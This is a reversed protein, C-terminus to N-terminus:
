ITGTVLLTVTPYNIQCGTFILLFFVTVYYQIQNVVPNLFYDETVQKGSNFWRWFCAQVALWSGDLIYFFLFYFSLQCRQQVFYSNDPFHNEQNFYSLLFFIYLVYSSILHEKKQSIEVAFYSLFIKRRRWNWFCDKSQSTQCIIKGKRSEQGLHNLIISDILFWEILYFFFLFSNGWVQKRDPNRILLCQTLFDTASFSGRMCVAHYLSRERLSLIFVVFQVLLCTCGLSILFSDEEDSSENDAKWGSPWRGAAEM